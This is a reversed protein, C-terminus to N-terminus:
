VKGSSIARSMFWRVDTASLNRGSRLKPLTEAVLM